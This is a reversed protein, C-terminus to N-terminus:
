LIEERVRGAADIIVRLAEAGRSGAPFVGPEALRAAFLSMEQQFTDGAEGALVAEAVCTLFDHFAPPDAAEVAASM